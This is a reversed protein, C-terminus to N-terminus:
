FYEVLIPNSGVRASGMPNATWCRLWEAVKDTYQFSLKLKNCTKKSSYCIYNVAFQLKQLFQADGPILGQLQQTVSCFRNTLLPIRVWAQLHLSRGSRLAKSWEAMRVSRNKGLNNIVFAIKQSPSPSNFLLIMKKHEFCGQNGIYKLTTNQCKGGLPVHFNLTM